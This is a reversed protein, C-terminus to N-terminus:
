DRARRAPPVARLEDSVTPIAISGPLTLTAAGQTSSATAPSPAGVLQSAPLTPGQSRHTLARAPGATGGVRGPQWVPGGCRAARGTGPTGEAVRGVDWWQGLKYGAKRWVGAPAFGMSEHMRVSAEGPLTIVGMAQNIGQLTMVRLLVGYLTRAVGRRQADAHVYISTEAIWDYAARERFRGAYAYALVRGREEWVLWPYHPLRAQMRERM